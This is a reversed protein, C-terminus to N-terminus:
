PYGCFVKCYLTASGSSGGNLANLIKETQTQISTLSTRLADTSGRLTETNAGLAQSQTPDYSAGFPLAGIQGNPPAIATVPVGSVAGNAPLGVLGTLPATVPLSGGAGFITELISAQDQSLGQIASIARGDLVVWGQQIEDGAVFSTKTDGPQFQTSALYRGSNVDWYKWVGQSTNFFLLTVMQTPDAAGTLVFTVDDQIQGAMYQAIITLLQNIDAYSVGVPVPTATLKLPITQSM